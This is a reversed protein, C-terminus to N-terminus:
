AEGPGAAPKGMLRQFEQERGRPDLVSQVESVFLRRWKWIAPVAPALTKHWEMRKVIDYVSVVSDLVAHREGRYAPDKQVGTEDHRENPFFWRGRDILSSLRSLSEHQREFFSPCTFQAPDVDCLHAAESLADCTEDAWKRLELFYQHRVSAVQLRNALGQARLARLSFFGSAGAALMSVLASALAIQQEDM